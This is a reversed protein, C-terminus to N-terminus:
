QKSYATHHEHVIVNQISTWYMPTTCMSQKPVLPRYFNLPFPLLRCGYLVKYLQVIYSKETNFGKELVNIKESAATPSAKAYWCFLRYKWCFTLYIYTGYLAVIVREQNSVSGQISIMCLVLPWLVYILKLFHTFLICFVPYSPGRVSIYIKHRKRWLLYQMKVKFYFILSFM